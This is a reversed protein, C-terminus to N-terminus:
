LYTQSWDNVIDAMEISADLVYAHSHGGQCVRIDCTPFRKKLEYSYELPCWRDTTGFYFSLHQLNKQVLQVDLELVTQMEEHAMFLSNSVCFANLLGFTASHVCEPLNEAQFHHRILWMKTANPLLYLLSVFFPAMWRLYKLAPAYLKGNPSVAMREITPFLMFCRGISHDLQDLMKLVIYCGISHAILFLKVNRPINEKIFAVKHRIQGQLTCVDYSLKNYLAQNDDPPQVHGAHSVGWVPVHKKNRLFLRAMFSDYYEIVGPNGPIVLFMSTTNSKIPGYKLVSTPMRLVPIFSMEKDIDNM